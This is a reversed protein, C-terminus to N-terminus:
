SATISIDIIGFKKDDQTILVAYKDPKVDKFTIKGEEVLSSEVEKGNRSLTVRFDQIKKRTEKETLRIEIDCLNAKKKDVDLETFINDFEKIIKIENQFQDAEGHSRLVPVPILQPGRLVEGTTKVLEIVKEKFDLVVKLINTGVDQSLLDMAAQVVAEPTEISVNKDLANLLLLHDRLIINCKQCSLTHEFLKSRESEALQADILCAIDEETLCKGKHWAKKAGKLKALVIKLKSEVNKDM